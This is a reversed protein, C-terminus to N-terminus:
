SGQLLPPILYILDRQQKKTGEREWKQKLICGCYCLVMYDRKMQGSCLRIISCSSYFIRCTVLVHDVNSDEVKFPRDLLFESNRFIMEILKWFSFPDVKTDTHTPEHCTKPPISIWQTERERFRCENQSFEMESDTPNLLRTQYRFM